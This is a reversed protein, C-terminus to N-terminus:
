GEHQDAPHPAVMGNIVIDQFCAAVESSSLRQGPRLWQYAWNCMGGVALTAVQPDLPRFEGTSVGRRIVDEMMQTYRARKEQVVALEEPRLERSHEFFVRSYGSRSAILELIDAIIEFLSESASTPRAMRAEHRALIEDIVEEHIWFLIEHKSSFYHYLTSKRIGVAAGIDDMTTQYYGRSNFLEAARQVITRRREDAPVAVVARPGSQPSEENRAVSSEM